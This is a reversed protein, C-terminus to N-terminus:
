PGSGVVLTSKYGIDADKGEAEGKRQQQGKTGDSHTSLSDVDLVNANHYLQMYRFSAWFSLVFNYLNNPTNQFLLYQKPFTV